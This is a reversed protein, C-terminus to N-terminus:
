GFNLLEFVEYLSLLSSNISQQAGQTLSYVTSKIYHIAYFYASRKKEICKFTEVIQPQPFSLFYYTHFCNKTQLWKIRLLAFYCFAAMNSSINFLPIWQFIRPWIRGILMAAIVDSAFSFFIIHSSPASVSKLLVMRVACARHAKWQIRGIASILQM